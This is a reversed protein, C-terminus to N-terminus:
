PSSSAPFACSGRWGHIPKTGIKKLAAMAQEARYEQTFGLIANLVVIALIVFVELWEGLAASVLAAVILIIVMIEKFQDLFIRWPEKAGKEVLENPGYKELRQQAEDGALGEQAGTGLKQLVETATLKYWSM